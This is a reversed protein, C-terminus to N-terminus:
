IDDLFYCPVFIPFHNELPPLRVIMIGCALSVMEACGQKGVDLKRRVLCM